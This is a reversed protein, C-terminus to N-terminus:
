RFKRTTNGPKPVIKNPKVRTQAIGQIGQKYLNECNSYYEVLMNRALRNIRDLEPIGKLMVNPHIRIVMDGSTKEIKFLQELLLGCRAAHKIQTGFLRRVIKYVGRGASDKINYNTDSKLATCAKDSVRDKIASAELGYAQQDSVSDGSFVASMRKMFNVYSQIDTSEPSRLIKSSQIQIFDYFLQSLVKIGPIKTIDESGKPLADRVEPERRDGESLIHFKSDCIGSHFTGNM